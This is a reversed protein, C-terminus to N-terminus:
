KASCYMYGDTLVCSKGDSSFVQNGIVQYTQGTSSLLASGAVLYSSGDSGTIRDGFVSYRVGTSVNYISKESSSNVIQTVSGSSTHLTSLNNLTKLTRLNSSPSAASVPQEISPPSVYDHQSTGANGAGGLGAGVILLAIVAVTAVVELFDGVQKASPLADQLSTTDFHPAPAGERSSSRNAANRTEEIAVIRNIFQTVSMPQHILKALESKAVIEKGEEPDLQVPERCGIPWKNSDIYYTHGSLLDFETEHPSPPKFKFLSREGTYYFCTFTHKGPELSLVLHSGTPMLALLTGDMAYQLPPVQNLALMQYMKKSRVFYVTSRTKDSASTHAQNISAPDREFLHQNGINACGFLSLLCGTLVLVQRFM